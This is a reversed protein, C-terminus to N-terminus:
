EFLQDIDDQKLGQASREETRLARRLSLLEDIEGATYQRKNGPTTITAQLDRSVGKEIPLSGVLAM